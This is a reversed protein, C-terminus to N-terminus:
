LRISSAGKVAYAVTYGGAPDGGVEVFYAGTLAPSFQLICGLENTNPASGSAVLSGHADVIRLALRDNAGGNETPFTLWFQYTRGALLGLKM